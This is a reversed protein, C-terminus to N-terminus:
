EYLNVQIIIYSLVREEGFTTETTKVSMYTSLILKKDEPKKLFINGKTDLNLAVLPIDEYYSVFDSIIVNNYIYLLKYRWEKQIEEANGEKENLYTAALTLIANGDENDMWFKGVDGNREVNMIFEVIKVFEEPSVKLWQNSRKIGKVKVEEAEVVGSFSFILCIVILSVVLKVLKM